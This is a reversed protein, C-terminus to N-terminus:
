PIRCDFPDNFEEPSSMYLENKKLVNKHHKDSWNRYKYIIKPIKTESM